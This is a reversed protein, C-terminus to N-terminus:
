VTDIKVPLCDLGRLTNNLRPRPEGDLHWQAVKNAMARFVAEGQMRAITQGICNHIGTGYGLHGIVRRTIDFGDPDSWHRPDRNAGAFFVLVKADAPLEFGAVETPRTTTRFFGMVPSERRVIEDFANRALAVDNRLVDWQDPFRIFDLVGLGIASVTTDIGASLFSRVLLAADAESVEGSDVAAYIQAGLGDPRLSSRACHEAIWPIVDNARELSKALLENRPGQGNFVMSGYALLMHRCDAQLGFAAPFVETPFVEALDRVADFSGRRALSDALEAAKHDFTAQLQKLGSPALARAVVRRNIAHVPPDVELLISPKRWSQEKLLNTIGAGAASSYTDHDRLVLDVEDYRSVSWVGYRPLLVVAALDRLQQLFPFPDSLFEASFPDVDSSVWATKEADQSM